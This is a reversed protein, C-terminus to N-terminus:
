QRRVLILTKDDGAPRGAAFVEIERLIGKRVSALPSERQRRLSEVLREIGFQEGAPNEAEVLGDTYLLLLDGPELSIEQRRFSEWPTINLAPDADYRSEVEGNAHVLVPPMHGANSYALRGTEVELMGIFLTLFHDSRFTVRVHRELRAMIEEIALGDQLHAHLAARVGAVYLASPLGKGSVDGIVLTLEKDKSSFFDIYDGGVEHCAETYGDVFYNPLALPQRPLLQEIIEKALRLDRELVQTAVHEHLLRVHEIKLAVLGALPGVAELAEQSQVADGAHRDLYIVGTVKGEVILPVCVAMTAGSQIFSETPAYRVDDSTVIASEGSRAVRRLIDRSIIIESEPGRRVRKALFKLRDPHGEEFLILFSHDYPVREELLDLIHEYVQPLPAELFLRLVAQWNSSWRTGEPRRDPPPETPPQLELTRLVDWPETPFYRINETARLSAPVAPLDVAKLIIRAGGIQVLDGAQLRQTRVVRERNVYVGNRSENDVVDIGEPTRRISAHQRSVSPDWLVIENEPGRGIHFPFRDLPITMTRGHSDDVWLSFQEM